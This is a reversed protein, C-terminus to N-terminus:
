ISAVVERTVTIQPCVGYSQRIKKAIKEALHMTQIDDICNAHVFVALEKGGQLAFAQRVGDFSKALAEYGEIKEFHQESADRRAKLRMSSLADCAKLIKAENTLSLSADHHSAVCASVTATEGYKIAIKSGSEAHSLAVDSPICKGIDHLLGIRKYMQCDLGLESAILAMLHSVEVSHALLNQGLTTRVHMQGVLRVLEPHMDSIKLEELAKYGQQICADELAKDATILAEDITSPTIRENQVLTKIALHAVELFFPNHCFLEVQDHELVVDVRSAKTFHKLNKGERGIIKAKITPDSLFVIRTCADLASKPHRHLADCLLTIARDTSQAYLERYSKALSEHCSLEVEYLLTKVAEEKTMQARKELMDEVVKQKEHLKVTKEKILQNQHDVAKQTEKIRKKEEELLRELAQHKAHMECFRAKQATLEEHVQEKAHDLKKQADREAQEIIKKALADLSKHHVFHYCKYLLMGLIMGMFLYLIM